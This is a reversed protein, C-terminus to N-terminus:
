RSARSARRRLGLTLLGLGLLGATKPEPVLTPQEFTLGDVGFDVGTFVVSAIGEPRELGLFSANNGWNAVSPAGITVSELLNGFSDYADMRITSGGAGAVWAGVRLMATGFTFELSVSGAGVNDFIGIYSTSPMGWVDPVDGVDDVNGNTGWQNIAGAQALNHVFAGNTFLGPNPVPSTLTVGSAFTFDSVIAPMVINAFVSPGVNPGLTINEFNEVAQTGGFAAPTIQTAGAPGAAALAAAALLARISNCRDM